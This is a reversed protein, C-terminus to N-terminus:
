ELAIIQATVEGMMHNTATIANLGRAMQLAASYAAADAANQLELRDNTAAGINGVLVLGLVFAMLLFCSVFNIYGEDDCALCLALRSARRGASPMPVPPLDPRRM